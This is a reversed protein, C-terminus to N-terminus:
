SRGSAQPRFDSAKLVMAGLPPLPLSVSYPQGHSPKEEAKVVGNSVGSEGAKVSVFRTLEDM